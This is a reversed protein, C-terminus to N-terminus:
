PRLARIIPTCRECLAPHEPDEGVRPSFTWCRECKKWGLAQAPAVELVLGPIDQSEYRVSGVPGAKGKAGKKTKLDEVAKAPAAKASAKAPAPKAVAKPAAKAAAKAPAPATKKATM